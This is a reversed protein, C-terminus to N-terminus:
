PPKWARAAECCGVFEVYSKYNLDGRLLYAVTAEEIRSIIAGAEGITAAELAAIHSRTEEHTKVLPALGPFGIGQLFAEERAVHDEFCARLAAIRECVREHKGQRLAAAIEAMLKLMRKHYKDFEAVGVSISDLWRLKM